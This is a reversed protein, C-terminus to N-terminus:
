DIGSSGTHDPLGCILVLGCRRPREAGEFRLASQVQLMGITVLEAVLSSNGPALNHREEEDSILAISGETAPTAVRCSLNGSDDFVRGRITSRSRGSASLLPSVM